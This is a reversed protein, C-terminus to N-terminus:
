NGQVYDKTEKQIAKAQSRSILYTDALEGISATFIEDVSQFGSKHLYYLDRNKVSDFSYIETQCMSVLIQAVESPRVGSTALGNIENQAAPISLPTETAIQLAAPKQKGVAMLAGEKMVFAMEKSIGDVEAISTVRSNTLDLLGQFGAQLLSRAQDPSVGPLFLFDTASPTEFDDRLMVTPFTQRFQLAEPISPKDIDLIRAVPDHIRITFNNERFTEITYEVSAFDLEWYKDDDNWTRHTKEWELEDMIFDYLKGPAALAVEPGYKGPYLDFISVFESPNSDEIVWRAQEDGRYELWRHSPRVDEVSITDSEDIMAATSSAHRLQKAIYSELQEPALDFDFVMKSITIYSSRLLSWLEDKAWEARKQGEFNSPSYNFLGRSVFKELIGEETDSYLDHVQKWAAKNRQTEDRFNSNYLLRTGFKKAKELEFEDFLWYREIEWEEGIVKVLHTAALPEHKDQIRFIRIDGEVTNIEEIIEM